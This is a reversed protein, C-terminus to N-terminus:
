REFGQTQGVEWREPERTISDQQCACEGLCVLMPKGTATQVDAHNKETINLGAALM